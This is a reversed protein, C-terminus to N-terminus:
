PRKGRRKLTRTTVYSSAGHSVISAGTHKRDLLVRSGAFSGDSLKAGLAVLATKQAACITDADAGSTLGPHYYKRLYVRKGLTNFRDLGWRAWVADDGPCVQCSGRTLTGAVPTNPSVRLDVSWVAHAGDADDNYAYGRIVSASSDLVTKEQTVLADFLTRWDADSTPPSGSLWYTNSFEENADGRYTFRKIVTLGTISAM